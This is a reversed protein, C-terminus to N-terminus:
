FPGKFDPDLPSAQLPRVTPSATRLAGERVLSRAAAVIEEAAPYFARELAWSSPSHTDPFAVRLVPGKLSSFAQEAALAAVEASAGMRKWGPDAVVLRGTKAVSRLVAAEDMPRVTRLDIVEAEVGEAELREAAEMAEMVMQSLAVVTVDRGERRVAAQGLPVTYPEQPVPGQTEYLRRHELFIVPSTDQLSALLLGKADYPTAPMVVKLGPVHAFTAQLSKSHQPGQGWGRGIIARVVFPVKWQGGTLWSWKSANNILQDMTLLLFDNRAHVLVPRMGALAAGIGIGTLANESLPTDFVRKSGFRKYAPLTTGFIGKPDDVGVGYLFVRPDAEMGQVLAEALAERYTLVRM